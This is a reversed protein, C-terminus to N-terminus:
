IAQEILNPDPLSSTNIKIRESNVSRIMQNVLTNFDPDDVLPSFIPMIQVYTYDLYGQSIASALSRKAAGYDGDAIEVVSRATYWNPWVNNSNTLSPRPVTDETFRNKFLWYHLTQSYFYGQELNTAKQLSRDALEWREDIMALEALTTYSFATGLNFGHFKELASYAEESEGRTHLDRAYQTVVFADNPALKYALEVWGKSLGTAQSLYLIEAIQLITYGQQANLVTLNLQLSEYLRGKRVYLYALSAAIQRAAESNHELAKEYYFIAQDIEGKADFYYAQLKSVQWVPAGMETLTDILEAAFGLFLEQGEFKVFREIYATALGIHADINSPNNALFENFLETAISNSAANNQRAFEFAKQLLLPQESLQSHQAEQPSKLRFLWIVLLVLAVLVGSKILLSRSNTKSESFSIEAADSKHNLEVQALWKYGENRESAILDEGVPSLCKRLLSVRQAITEDSVHSKGWVSEALQSTSLVRRESLLFEILLKYTLGRIALPRGEFTVRQMQVDVVLGASTCEVLEASDTKISLDNM